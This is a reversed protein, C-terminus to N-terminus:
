EREVAVRLAGVSGEGCRQPQGFGHIVIVPVAGVVARRQAVTGGHQRKGRFGLWRRGHQRFEDLQHFPFARFGAPRARLVVGPHQQRGARQLFAVVGYLKLDVALGMGAGIRGVHGALGQEVGREGDGIVALSRQLRDDGAHGRGRLRQRCAAVAVGDLAGVVREVALFRVDGFGLLVLTIHDHEFDRRLVVPRLAHQDGVEQGGTELDVIGTEDGARLESAKRPQRLGIGRMEFEAVVTEDRGEVRRLVVAVAGLRHGIDHAGHCWTDIHM